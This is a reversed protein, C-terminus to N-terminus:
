VGSADKKELVWFGEFPGESLDDGLVVEKKPSGRTGCLKKAGVVGVFM